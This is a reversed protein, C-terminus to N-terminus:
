HCYCLWDLVRLMDAHEVYGLLSSLVTTGDFVPEELHPMDLLVGGECCKTQAANGSFVFSAMVSKPAVLIKMMSPVGTMLLRGVVHGNTTDRASPLLTVDVCMHLICMSPRRPDESSVDDQFEGNSGKKANDYESLSSAFYM